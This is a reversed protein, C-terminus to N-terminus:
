DNSRWKNPDFRSMWSCSRSWAEQKIRAYFDYAEQESWFLRKHEQYGQPCSWVPGQWSTHGRWHVQTTEFCEGLTFPKPAAGCPTPLSGEGIMKQLQFPSTDRMPTYYSVGYTVNWNVSNTTHLFYLRTLLLLRTEWVAPAVRREEPVLGLRGMRYESLLRQNTGLILPKHQSRDVEVDRYGREFLYEDM